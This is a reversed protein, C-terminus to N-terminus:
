LEQDIRTRIVADMQVDRTRPPRRQGCDSRVPFRLGQARRESLVPVRAPPTSEDGRPADVALPM